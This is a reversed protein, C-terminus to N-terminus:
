ALKQTKQLPLSHYWTLLKGCDYTNQAGKASFLPKPMPNQYINGDQWRLLTRATVGFLSTIEDTKAIPRSQLFEQINMNM